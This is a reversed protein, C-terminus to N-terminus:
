VTMANELLAKVKPYYSLGFTSLHVKEGVARYTIRKGERQLRHIADIVQQALEEENQQFRKEKRQQKDESAAQTMLARVAPYHFLTARHIGVMRSLGEKTIPQGSVRCTQTAEQVCSLLEEARASGQARNERRHQELLAMVRPYRKLVEESRKVRSVVAKQTVAEGCDVLDTIAGEVEQLLEEELQVSGRQYRHYRSAKQRVLAKVRPYQMLISPVRGIRECIARQTVMVGLAELEALVTEVQGFLAEERLLFQQQQHLHYSQLHVEVLVKAQDYTRLTEHNIGTERAVSSYTVSQGRKVLEQIARQVEILVEEESRTAQRGRFHANEEVLARVRPYSRLTTSNSGVIKGVALFTVPKGVHELHHVAEEIQTLLAAEREEQKLSRDLYRSTLHQDIFARAPSSVSWTSDCLGFSKSIAKYTIPQQRAELDLVVTQVDKLLAQEREETRRHQAAAYDVHQQVFATVRSYRRLSSRPMGLHLSVSQFTIPEGTEALRQVAQQAKELLTEEHELRQPNPRQHADHVKEQLFAKVQPYRNLSKVSIGTAMSMARITWPKGLLSFEEVVAQVLEMVEDERFYKKVRLVQIQSDGM